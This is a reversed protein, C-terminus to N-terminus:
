PASGPTVAHVLSRLADLFPELDDVNPDGTREIIWEQRSGQKRTVGALHGNIKRTIYKAEAVRGSGRLAAAQLLTQEQSELWEDPAEGRFLLVGDSVRLRFKHYKEGAEPLLVDCGTRPGILQTWNSVRPGDSYFDYIFYLAPKRDAELRQQVQAIVPDLNGAAPPEPLVVVPKGVQKAVELQRQGLIDNQLGDLHLSLRAGELWERLRADPVRAPLVGRPLLAYGEDHLKDKLRQWRNKLDEDRVQAVYIKPRLEWFERLRKTIAAVVEDLLTELAEGQLLHGDRPDYLVTYDAASVPVEQGALLPVKLLQIVDKGGQNQFWELEDTMCNESDLYSPSVAAVLIPTNKLKQQIEELFYTGPAIRDDFWVEARGALFPNLKEVLRAKLRTVWGDQNDRHAYSIFVDASCGPVYSM